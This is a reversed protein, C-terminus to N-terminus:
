REAGFFPMVAAEPEALDAALVAVGVQGKHLSATTSREAAPRQLGAAALAGLESAATLWRAEGSHRYMELVAYAQGALGCCLQTVSTRTAYADWAAREALAAWRDDRLVAHAQTWLHVFGASGNCWGPMTPAAAGPTPDHMWPWRAGLGEPRALEALQDLRDELGAPMLTSSARCWRLTTLLIGAWGHAVGLNRLPGGAAIAPMADLEEWIGALTTAALEAMAATDAGPAGDIAELLIATALVTGSRGLTVDLAECPHRSEAVFGHLARQCAYSDGMAHSVLAQVAHVGSAQHFPSIPGTRRQDLQLEDSSFAQPAGAERAARVAWEDALAVLEPDSRLIGARYLAVALGAAGYAVSCFPPAPLGDDFWDGGPRVRALVGALVPELAALRRAPGGSSPTPAPAEVGALSRALEAVSAFRDEPDKALARALTAELAPWPPRDRLTFPLPSDEAIQRLAEERELSHDLYGSGTVLHYLIAGLAYQDSAFSAPPPPSGSLLAAAHQPDLFAQVGGRPPGDAGVTRALGFDVLRVEGSPSVLVNGPHVDGHVIGLGHLTGYADALRRCLDVLTGDSRGARRLVAAASSVSVGEWWDMCLWQNGDAEGQGLLRPSVRGDIHSLMEAERGLADRGADSREPRLVKLAALGGADLALQYLETDELVRVCRVVAGGAIRQGVSFAIRHQARGDSDSGVLYSGAMFRRLTPYSESLVAEPDRELRRSVRLVADVITSPERFEGLLEASAEDVLVSPTRGRARTVVFAGREGIEERVAPPLDSVRIVLVDGALAFSDTIRM